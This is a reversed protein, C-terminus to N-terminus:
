YSRSYNYISYLLGIIVEQMQKTFGPTSSVGVNKNRTMSNIISSKGVNPFGIVGVTISKKTDEIRCYNKLLELLNEAGVAKNSTMIDDKVTTKSIRSNNFLSISSLNSKQTQTNAKFLITPFERRLYKVWATANELPVLDVKNLILILKKQDKHSLIQSELEKSRCSMPDRADLVQLIVDSNNLVQNLENQYSKKSHDKREMQKLDKDEHDATLNKTTDWFIEEKKNSEIVLSEIDREEGTNRKGIKNELNDLLEQRSNNNKKRQLEEIIQRKHPYMNPVRVNKDIGKSM